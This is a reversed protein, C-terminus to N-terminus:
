IYMGFPPNDSNTDNSVSDLLLTDIHERLIKVPKSVNNFYKYLSKYQLRVIDTDPDTLMLTNVRSVIIEFKRKIDRMGQDSKSLEVIYNIANEDFQMDDNSFCYQDLISKILHTKTIELKEKISYNDVKIKFLRDALIPDVKSEDNYTFVFLVKSLDFELGSFYKDYNYKNNTSSDTMHILNGIIEKGHHTESVKDLEDFLIIPNTCKTERLIEIIRGPCSGVYTFGHGTLLSSDSEGGLSITKYPRGLAESISKVLNTKGTGKPGYLGIANVTFDPNRSTQTVINIIQDKARELFSLRKDLVERVNKIIQKSLNIDTSFTDGVIKNYPISLMIDMWSKYKAYESTDTTEFSDMVELRKYAIVKNDFSMESRLIKERYNDSYQLDDSTALIKRELELLETNQFQKIKDNISKLTSTYENTLMESNTFKYINELLKQKQIVDVDMNLVDVVSPAGSKYKERILDLQENLKAVHEISVNEKLTRKKEDISVREFFKGEYISNINKIYKDYEDREKVSPEVDSQNDVKIVQKLVNQITDVLVSGIYNIKSQEETEDQSNDSDYLIRDLEECNDTSGDTTKDTSQKAEEEDTNTDTNDNDDNDNDINDDNDNIFSDDTSDEVDADVGTDVGVDTQICAEQTKKVSKKTPIRKKKTLRVNSFDDQVELNEDIANTQQLDDIKRKQTRTFVM